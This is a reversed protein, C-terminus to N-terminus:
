LLYTYSSYVLITSFIHFAQISTILSVASEYMYAILGACTEAMFVVILMVSYQPFLSILEDTALSFLDNM